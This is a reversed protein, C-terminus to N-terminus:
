KGFDAVLMLLDVVDVSNDANMDCRPDYGSDGETKGFSDVFTLLDIVDVQGDEDIDGPYKSIVDMRIYETRPVKTGGTTITFTAPSTTLYKVYSKDVTWDSTGYEKWKYTVKLTTYNGALDQPNDFSVTLHNVGKDLYAMAGKNHEFTTSILLNSVGASANSGAASSLVVKLYYCWPAFLQTRVNLNTLATTGIQSDTWVTTWASGDASVQIRAVDGPNTRVFTGSISVNVLYFPVQIKFVMEGAVGVAAPHLDPSLGDDAFTALGTSSYIMSKYAQSRFDPAVDYTGNAWRRYTPISYSGYALMSVTYPEWYPFNVTDQYDRQAEHHFPPDSSTPPYQNAWSEWTRNFTEGTHLDMNMSWNDTVIGGPTVQYVNKIADAFWGADDGCLLFGPCARGQDVAGTMLTGDAAIDACGAIQPPNGRDYVYMTTMTDLLHWKGWYYVEYITHQSTGGDMLDIRHGDLGAAKAITAGQRGHNFCLGWGFINLAYVPDSLPVGDGTVGGGPPLQGWHYCRRKHNNYCNIAIAQDDAPAVVGSPSYSNKFTAGITDMSRCDAVRDNVIWPNHITVPAPPPAALVLGWLCLVSSTAVLRFTGVRCM